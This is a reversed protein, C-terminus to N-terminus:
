ETDKRSVSLQPPASINEVLDLKWFRFMIKDRYISLTSM